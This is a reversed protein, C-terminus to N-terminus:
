VPPDLDRCGRLHGRTDRGLPCCQDPLVPRDIVKWREFRLIRDRTVPLLHHEPQRGFTCTHILQRQEPAAASQKCCSRFSWSVETAVTVLQRPSICRMHDKSCLAYGSSAPLVSAHSELQRAAVLRPGPDRCFDQVM